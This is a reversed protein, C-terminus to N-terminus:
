RPRASDQEQLKASAERLGKMARRHQPDLSVARAFHIVAQAYDKQQLSALGREYHREAVSGFRYTLGLHHTEGLAGFGVYGYDVQLDLVRFGFGMTVGSGERAERGNYGLRFAVVGKAWYELGALWIAPDDGTLVTDASVSLGEFFPRLNVGAQLARPLAGGSPSKGWNRFAAGLTLTQFMGRRIPLWLAGGDVAFTQYTEGALTEQALVGQAGWWCQDGWGRGYGLRAASDRASVSGEAGGSPAFSPIDGYNLSLLNATVAGGKVFPHAYGATQYQVDDMWRAGSFAVEDRWLRGLGAPNIQAGALGTAEAVGAGGLASTRAGTPM